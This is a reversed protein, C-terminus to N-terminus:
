LLATGTTVTWGRNRLTTVDTIGQGTPRSNTGGVNLVCTGSATNRGAAVFSALINNVASANLQNGQALFNGLTPSVSGGAFDTFLNLACRFDQLNNLGNLNPIPGSIQNNSCNFIQLNNLGNFSGLTGQIRSNGTQQQCYFERLASLGNLSPFPGTLKNSNCYFLQLNTLGTLSPITGTIENLHCRFNALQNLGSVNPFNTLNNRDCRFNFLNPFSTMDFFNSLKNNYVQFVQLNSNAYGSIATINNDNCYFEQLNPFASLNITGGLTPSSAGCNIVTVNPNNQLILNIGAM